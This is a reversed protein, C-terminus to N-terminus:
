IIVNHLALEPVYGYKRCKLYRESYVYSLLDKKYKEPVVVPEDSIFSKYLFWSADCDCFYGYCDMGPEFYLPVHKTITYIQIELTSMTPFSIIIMPIRQDLCRLCTRKNLLNEYSGFRHMSLNELCSECEFKVDNRLCKECKPFKKKRQKTGFRLVNKSEECVCCKLLTM